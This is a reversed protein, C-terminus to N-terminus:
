DKHPTETNSLVQLALTKEIAEKRDFPVLGYVVVRFALDGRKVSLGVNKSVAMYYADEGIGSVPTVVVSKEVVTKDSQFLDLKWLQLTVYKSSDTAIWTCSNKFSPNPYAGTGFSTGVAASVQAQSLLPCAEQNQITSTVAVGSIRLSAAFVVALLFRRSFM